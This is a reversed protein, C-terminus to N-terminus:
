AAAASHRSGVRTWASKSVAARLRELLPSLPVLPLRARVTGKISSMRSSTVFLIASASLSESARSNVPGRPPRIVVATSRSAVDQSSTTNLAAVFVQPPVAQPV